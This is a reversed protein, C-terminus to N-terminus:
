ELDFTAVLLSPDAKVKDKCDNLITRVKGALNIHEDTQVRLAM